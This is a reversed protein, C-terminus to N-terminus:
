NLSCKPAKIFSPQDGVQRTLSGGDMVKMSVLLVTRQFSGVKLNFLRLVPIQSRLSGEPLSVM